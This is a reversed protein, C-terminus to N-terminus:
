EIRMKKTADNMIEGLLESMTKRQNYRGICWISWYFDCKKLNGFWSIQYLWVNQKFFDFFPLGMALISRIFLLSEAM